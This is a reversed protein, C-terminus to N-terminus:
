NVPTLESEDLQKLIRAYLRLIIGSSMVKIILLPNHPVLVCLIVGEGEAGNFVGIFFSMCVIDVLQSSELSM